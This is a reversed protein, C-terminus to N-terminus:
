HRGSDKHKSVQASSGYIKINRRAKAKIDVLKTTRSQEISPNINNSFLSANTGKEIANMKVVDRDCTQDQMIKISADLDNKNEIM